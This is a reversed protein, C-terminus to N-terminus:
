GAEIADVPCTDACIGCSTCADNIFRKGNKEIIADVPCESDCVGCNTCADLIKYAM